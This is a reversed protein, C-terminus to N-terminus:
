LSLSHEGGFHPHVPQDTRKTFLMAFNGAVAPIGLSPRM